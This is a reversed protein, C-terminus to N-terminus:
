TRPFRPRDRIKLFEDLLRNVAGPAELQTFHGVGPVVEIAVDKLRERLLELWPTTEGPGLPVRRREADLYTSQIAMAPARLAALAADMRELDWRVMSAWLASGLDAPLRLAREVAADAEACPRLFMQRVLPEVFAAYGGAQAAASGVRSGDILVVGAIREPDLRAAELVVRCGMSHGVLVANGLELHALLAAVDGGYHEISCEHARGPTAGHGRLDCAVVENAQSFHAVQFRWDEHSCTFGHVFVLPAAGKGSRVFHM